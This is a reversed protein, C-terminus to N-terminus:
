TTENGTTESGAVSSLSTSISFTLFVSLKLATVQQKVVQQTM